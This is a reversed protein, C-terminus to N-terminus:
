LAEDLQEQLHSCMNFLVFTDDQGIYGVHLQKYMIKIGRNSICLAFKNTFPCSFYGDSVLLDLAELKTKYNENYFDSVVLKLDRNSLPLRIGRHSLWSTECNGYSLSRKYHRNGGTTIYVACNGVLVYGLEPRNLILDPSTLAIHRGGDLTVGEMNASSIYVGEIDGDSNIVGAYTSNHRQAVDNNSRYTSRITDMDLM